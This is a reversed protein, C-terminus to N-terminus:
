ASVGRGDCFACFQTHQKGTVYDRTTTQEQHHPCSSGGAKLRDVEQRTERHEQEESAACELCLKGGYFGVKYGIPYPADEGRPDIDDRNLDNRGCRACVCYGDMPLMKREILAANMTAHANM